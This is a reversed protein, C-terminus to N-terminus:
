GYKSKLFRELKNQWIMHRGNHDGHSYRYYSPPAVAGTRYRGSQHVAYHCTACLVVCNDTSKLLADQARGPDGSQNPIVHHAHDELDELSEGCHACRANQRAFATSRVHKTFAFQRTM